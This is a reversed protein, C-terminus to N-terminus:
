ASGLGKRHSEGRRRSVEIGDSRGQRPFIIKAFFPSVPFSSLAARQQWASTTGRQSWLFTLPLLPCSLSDWLKGSTYTIENKEKFSKLGLSCSPHRLTHCELEDIRKKCLWPYVSTCDLLLMPHNPPVLIISTLVWFHTVQHIQSTWPVRNSNCM